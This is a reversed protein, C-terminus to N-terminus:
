IVRGTGIVPLPDILDYQRCQYSGGVAEPYAIVIRKNIIIDPGIIGFYYLL